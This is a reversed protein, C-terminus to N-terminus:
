QSVLTVFVHQCISSQLDSLAHHTCSVTTYLLCAPPCPLAYAGSFCSVLALWTSLVEVVEDAAWVIFDDAEFCGAVINGDVLRLPAIFRPLGLLSSDILRLRRFFDSIRDHTKSSTTVWWVVRIFILARVIITVCVTLM